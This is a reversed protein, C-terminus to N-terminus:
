QPLYIPVCHGLNCRTPQHYFLTRCTNSDRCFPSSKPVAPGRCWLPSVAWQINWDDVIYPIGVGIVGTKIDGFAYNVRERRREPAMLEQSLHNTDHRVKQAQKLSKKTRNRARINEWEKQRAQSYQELTAPPPPPSCIFKM